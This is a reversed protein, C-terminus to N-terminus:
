SWLTALVTTLHDDLGSRWRPTNPQVIMRAFVITPIQPAPRPLWTRALRGPHDGRQTKGDAVRQAM